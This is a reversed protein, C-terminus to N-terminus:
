FGHVVCVAVSGLELEVGASGSFSSDSESALEVGSLENVGVAKGELGTVNRPRGDKVKGDEKFNGLMALMGMDM